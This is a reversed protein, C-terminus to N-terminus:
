DLVDPLVVDYTLTGSGRTHALTLPPEYKGNEPEYIAMSTIKRTFFWEEMVDDEVHKYLLYSAFSTWTPGDIERMREMTESLDHLATPEDYIDPRDKAMYRATERLFDIGDNM